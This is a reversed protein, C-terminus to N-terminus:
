SSSSLHPNSRWRASGDNVYGVHDFWSTKCSTWEGEMEDISCGPVLMEIVNQVRAFGLRSAKLEPQPAALTECPGDDELLLRVM